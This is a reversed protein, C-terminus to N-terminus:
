EDKSHVLTKVILLFFILLVATLIYTEQKTRVPLLAYLAALVLVGYCIMAILLRRNLKKIKALLDRLVFM